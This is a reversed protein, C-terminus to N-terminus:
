ESSILSIIRVQQPAPTAIIKEKATDAEFNSIHSM